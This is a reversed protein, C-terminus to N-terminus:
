NESKKLMFLIALLIMPILFIKTESAAVFPNVEQVSIIKTKHNNTTNQEPPYETLDLNIKYNGQQLIVLESDLDISYSVNESSGAEISFNKSSDSFATIGTEAHIITLSLNADKEESSSNIIVANIEITSETNINEPLVEFFSIGLVDAPIPVVRVLVYDEETFYEGEWTEFVARVAINHDGINLGSSSFNEKTSGWSFDKNSDWQVTYYFFNNQIQSEFNLETGIVAKTANEPSLIGAKLSSLFDVTFESHQVSSWKGNYCSYYYTYEGDKLKGLECTARSSDPMNCDTGETLPNFTSASFKCKEADDSLINLIIKTGDNIKDSYPPASDAGISFLKVTPGELQGPIEEKEGIELANANLLFLLFATILIKKKM